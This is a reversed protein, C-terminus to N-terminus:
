KAYFYAEHDVDNGESEWEYSFPLAVRRGKVLDDKPLSMLVTGGSPVWSM